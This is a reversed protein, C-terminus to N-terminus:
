RERRIVETRVFVARVYAVHRAANRYENFSVCLVTGGYGLARLEALAGANM